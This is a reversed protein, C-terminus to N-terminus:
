FLKFKNKSVWTCINRYVIRLLDNIEPNCMETDTSDVPNPIYTEKMLECVVCILQKGDDDNIKKFKTYSTDLSKRLLPQLDGNCIM